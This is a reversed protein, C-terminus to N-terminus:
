PRITVFKGNHYKYIKSGHSAPLTGGDVLLDIETAFEEYIQDPDNLPERGTRNVSTTTIPKGSQKVLNPGFSHGPIRIGLCGDDSLITKSVVGPKVPLIVTTAGGLYPEITEMEASTVSVWTRVMNLDAAIVSVPGTRRKLENLRAIAEENTADVGLGYLTDTPYAVIGGQNIIESAKPLTDPDALSMRICHRTTNM